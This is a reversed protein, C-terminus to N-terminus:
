IFFSVFAELLGFSDAPLQEPFSDISDPLGLGLFVFSFIDRFIIPLSNYGENLIVFLDNLSHEGPVGLHM